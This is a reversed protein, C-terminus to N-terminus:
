LVWNLLINLNAQEKRSGSETSIFEYYGYFKLLLRQNMILKIEALPGISNYETVLKKKNNDNYDFTSLNFYRLGVGLELGGKSYFIKPTLYAEHLFRVPQNSFDKWSFDGQESFKIYGYFEGKLRRSILLETSDRIALQRFSFSKFNPNLEEYDYVTYNASVEAANVSRFNSNKYQGGATFKLFRKINNNSSREAFLYATKNLSGEFTTFVNFFYNLKRIYTLKVMSLLEDRDDHNNESPTDYILKRHYLSLLFRDKSSLKYVGNASLTIQKSTNNKQAEISQRENYFIPNAGSIEKALHKEERETYAARIQGNLNKSRYGVTSTLDIKFEEIKTDFTSRTINRLSIYRTNRDINRMSVRGNLDLTINSVPSLYFFRNQINLRNETRSEINKDINFESSTISDADLYFDRRQETYLVAVNNSINNEFNSYMNLNIYRLTNKRPSIDENEYKMKSDLSLNDINFRDVFLESGYVFGEDTIATQQNQSLGFYPSVEFKQFPRIKAFAEGQLISTKNIALSRDDSYINNKLSMGISLFPLIDYANLFTFYQEDKISNTNSKIVTSRFNEDISFFYNNWKRNFQFASNFNYTNLQKDFFSTLITKDLDPDVFTLTDNQADQITQSFMQLSLLLLM